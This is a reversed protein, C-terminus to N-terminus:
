LEQTTPDSMAKEYVRVTEQAVRQWSFESSRALGKRRMGTRLYEDTLVREMADAIHGASTPDVLLGADGVVEPLSSTDSAIVPTGCAMAELPPLGFGEYLSPYVFCDAANYWLPLEERPIYGPFRVRDHLNLEEVAAFVEQHHWGKPGAIVLLPVELRQRLLAYAKLLTVLNKRPEITGVFLIMRRPLHRKMRFHDLRQRDSIPQFDEDVGCPVVDVKGDAVGLLDIVDERTSASIAIIRRAKRSSRKTGWRLYLRRWAGFREPFLVFSLDYVTVVGPCPLFVPQVFALSHLLDIRQRLLEMPQVAQEWFIRVAPSVTPFPSILAEVNPFAERARRDALFVTYRHRNGSTPLHRLLNHIYWNIGAARYSTASSLLHANLGIHM